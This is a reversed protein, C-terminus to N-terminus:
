GAGLMQGVRAALVDLEFPKPLIELDPEAGAKAMVEADAYGTIFLVKLEPRLVRAADAMQRGNLTGPLGVDTVLLSIPRDSQLISLGAEGDKAELVAFGQDVLTEVMVMRVIEEDDVILVTEGPPSAAPAAVAVPAPAAEAPGVHRPLYVCLTTGAGVETDIRVHGGSQRAFGYVMSLGLGTGGGLPKTTFFPDFARQAVDPAMGTGTDIVCLSLYAGPPLDEAVADAGELWHNTTEITLDGGDPMADRANICLNLLVNEMQNADIRVPWAGEAAIIKLRIHPGVTRDILEAMDAVLRNVDTPKPDLTQRRSFALLRHTLAAARRAQAEAADIHRDVEDTRGEALRARLLTLSGSLGTLLNNFDHAIGGTLQGVAEMKQAQRLAEEAKAREATEEVVRAQLVGNIDSLAAQAMKEDHIDVCVGYWVTIAGQADRVPKARARLWRYGRRPDLLRYECEYPEGSALCAHLAARAREGDDPHFISKWTADWLMGPEKGTFEYWRRNFYLHNGQPDIAWIMPDISDVIAEFRAREEDLTMQALKRDTIDRYLIALGAEVPYARVDLWVDRVPSVHRYELSEAVRTKMVRQYAPWTPFARAEPWVDLLHRGVIEGRPRGDVRLGEANIDLIHFDWGLVLYAEGIRNLIPNAEARGAAQAAEGSELPPPASRASPKEGPARPEERSLSSDDGL